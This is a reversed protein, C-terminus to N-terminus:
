ECVADTEDDGSLPTIGDFANDVRYGLDTAGIAQNFAPVIEDPSAPTTIVVTASLFRKSKRTLSRVDVTSLSPKLVDPAIELSRLNKKLSDRSTGSPVAQVRLM